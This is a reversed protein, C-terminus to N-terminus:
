CITVERQKKLVKAWLIRFEKSCHKCKFSHAAIGKAFIVIVAIVALPILVALLYAM